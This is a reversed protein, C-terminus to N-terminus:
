AATINHDSNNLTSITMIAQGSPNVPVVFTGGGPGTVTPRDERTLRLDLRDLAEDPEDFVPERDREIRRAVM